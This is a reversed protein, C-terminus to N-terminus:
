LGLLQVIVTKTLHKNNASNNYVHMMVPSQEDPVQSSCFLHFIIMCTVLGCM